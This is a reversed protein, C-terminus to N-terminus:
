GKVSGASLGALLSKQLVFGILVPPLAALVGVASILGYDIARGAAFDAIAVPLTKARTDSTYLLAYFFEDWALLLAFLAAAGVSAASVPLTIYRLIQFLGAGDIEAAQEIEVPVSDFGSKMLWTVFPLLITCYVIILAAINNLLGLASFVRYLPLILAVPPMMYTVIVAYLLAMRGPFRSFSYAAPIGTALAIATAILSVLLSNRLASLFDAGASGESLSFLRAYRSFDPTEPLWRLPLATLDNPSSISMVFLWFVPALISVVLMAVALYVLLTAIRGRRM